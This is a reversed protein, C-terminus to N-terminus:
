ASVEVESDLESEFAVATAGKGTAPGALFANMAAESFVMDDSKLIDYANLQDPVLL